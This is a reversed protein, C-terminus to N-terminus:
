AANTKESDALLLQLQREQQAERRYLAFRERRERELRLSREREHAAQHEARMEEPWRYAPGHADCHDEVCRVEINGWWVLRDFGHRDPVLVWL